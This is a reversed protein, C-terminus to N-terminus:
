RIKVAVRGVRNSSLQKQRQVVKLNPGEWSNRFFTWIIKSSVEPNSFNQRIVSDWDLLRVVKVILEGFKNFSM